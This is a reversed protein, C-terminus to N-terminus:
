QAVRERGPENGKEEAESVKKGQGINEFTLGQCATEEGKDARPGLPTPPAPSVGPEGPWHPQVLLEWGPASIVLSTGGGLSPVVVLNEDTAVSVNLHM